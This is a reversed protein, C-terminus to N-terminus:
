YLWRDIVSGGAWMVNIRDALRDYAAEQAPTLVVDAGPAVELLGVLLRTDDTVALDLVGLARALQEVVAVAVPAPEDGVEVSGAAEAGTALAEALDGSPDLALARGM